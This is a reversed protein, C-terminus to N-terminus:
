DSTAGAFVAIGTGRKNHVVLFRVSLRAHVKGHSYNMFLAEIRLHACCGFHMITSHQVNGEVKLIRQMPNSKLMM